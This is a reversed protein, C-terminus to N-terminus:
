TKPTPEPNQKPQPKEQPPGGLAQLRQQALKTEEFNQLESAALLEAYTRRAAETDRLKEFAEGSRLYAKAVWDRWRGHMIYIRQFYPVALQPKGEALHLEGIRYLAEAKDRGTASQDSLLSELTKKAEQFQNRKQEIEAKAFLVRPTHRSGVTEKLFRQFTSMADDLRGTRLEALGIEALARDKQPARPNWRVLERFLQLAGIDDGIELRAEALDALIAPSTTSTDVTKALELLVKRAGVPDSRKRAQADAWRLRIDMPSGQPFKSRLDSLRQFYQNQGDEGPYLKQLASFMDEVGQILPDNGLESIAKWYREKAENERGQQRDAWGILYIAEALRSSRPNEHAFKLLHNRLADYDEMLKLAKATKFVGEEYFRTKEKPIAAYVQIGEEIRGENLLADGLLVRAEAENEHGPHEELFAHLEPISTAFDMKSHAAYARRFKAAGSFAGSPHKKLYDSLVKRSEDYKEQLSLAVGLWYHSAEQLDSKPYKSLFEEFKKAAEDNKEALLHTFAAMFSARPAFESTPFQNLIQHFTEFSATYDTTQQEAVGRLYLVLPLSPSKPFKLEFEKAAAITKDHRPIANWAQVLAVSAQE